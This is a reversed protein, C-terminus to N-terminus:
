GSRRLAARRQRKHSRALFSRHKAAVPQPQTLVRDSDVLLRVSYLVDWFFRTKDKTERVEVLDDSFLPDRDGTVDFCREERLVRRPYCAVEDSRYALLDNTYAIWKSRHGDFVSRGLWAPDPALGTIAAISPAIDIQHIPVSIQRPNNMGKTVVSFLIRYSMDIEKYHPLRKPFRPSVWVGHDGMLFVVTNDALKSKFFRDFFSGLVEDAYRWRSLFAQYELANGTKKLLSEPLTGEPIMSSFPAHTDITLINAFFPMEPRALRELEDLTAQLVPEDAYGWPPGDSIRKTIGAARFFYTDYFRDVGHKSEFSYKNLFEKFNSHFWLTQYGRQKLLQQICHIKLNEHAIYVDAGFLNPLYSCLASFQGNVTARTSSYTQTFTLGHRELVSRLRPFVAPGLEPHLFEFSRGSELFLAIVNVPKSPDLGLERRLETKKEVSPVISATPLQRGSFERLFRVSSQVQAEGISKDVAITKRDLLGKDRAVLDTWWTVLIQDAIASGQYPNHIHFWVPIQRLLLAFAIVAFGHLVLRRRSTNFFYPCPPKRKFALTALIGTCIASALILPSCMGTYAMSRIQLLDKFHAYVIWLHLSLEFFCFYLTNSVSALWSITFLVAALRFPNVRILASVIGVMGFILLAIFLDYLVGMWIGAALAEEKSLDLSEVIKVRLFLGALLFLVLEVWPSRLKILRHAFRM